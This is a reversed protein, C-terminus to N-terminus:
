RKPGITLRLAVPKHDSGSWGNKGSGGRIISMSHYKVYDLNWSFVYDIIRSSHATGTSSGLSAVGKYDWGSKVDLDRKLARCPLYASKCSDTRYDSNIDGTLFIPVNDKKLKKILKTTSPMHVKYARGGSSDKITGKQTTSDPPFHTNLVYFVKGSTKEQLKVWVIYKKIDGHTAGHVYGKDILTFKNRHWIIAVKKPSITTDPYVQYTCSACAIKDKITMTFPGAEQMGVVDVDGMLSKLGSIVKSSKNSLLVNWSAVALKLSTETNDSAAAPMSAESSSKTRTDLTTDPASSTSQNQRSGNKVIATEGFVGGPTIWNLLPLMIAFTAIGIVVSALIKRAHQM